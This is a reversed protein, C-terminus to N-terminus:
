KRNRRIWYDFGVALIIISGQVIQQYTAPVALLTFGNDILSLFLVGFVTRWVAGEGGFISTGGVVIGAIATLEVGAGYNAQGNGSRATIIIGAIAAAMASLVFTTTRVRHVSIGALRAAEPNGGAAFVHRGFVTTSLLWGMLICFGAFVLISIKVGGVSGLGIQRFSNSSISVIYGGTVALCIGRVVIQMALTTIFPSIQGITSLLGNILGIAAGTLIGLLLGVVPGFQNTGHAAVIGALAFIAGVSLDFGGAIMVLTGAAAIIGIPAASELLNLLNRKSAFVPSAISLTIFMAVFVGVIGFDLPSVRAISRRMQTLPGHTTETKPDTSM